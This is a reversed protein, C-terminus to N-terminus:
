AKKPTKNESKRTKANETRVVRAGGKPSKMNERRRAYAERREEKLEIEHARAMNM